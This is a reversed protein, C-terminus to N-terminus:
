NEEATVLKKNPTICFKVDIVFHLLMPYLLSGTAIYLKCMMYGFIATGLMGKWGQYYHAIGFLIAGIIAITQFSLSWPLHLTFMVFAGRFLLEECIGATIAVGLFVWREKKTEPLLFDINGVTPQADKKKGFITLVTILIATGTLVGVIFTWDYDKTPVIDLSVLEHWQFPSFVWAVLLIGCIMWQATMTERYIQIKPIRAIDKQLFLYDSVIFYIMAGLLVIGILLM